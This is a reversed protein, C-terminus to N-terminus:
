PREYIITKELIKLTLDMENLNLGGVSREDTKDKGCVIHHAFSQIIDGVVDYKQDNQIKMIINAYAQEKPLKYRWMFVRHLARLWWPPRMLDFAVLLVALHYRREDPVSLVLNALRELDVKNTNDM